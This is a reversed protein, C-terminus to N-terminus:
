SYFSFLYFLWNELWVINIFNCILIHKVCFQVMFIKYKLESSKNFFFFLIFSLWPFAFCYFLLKWNWKEKTLYGKRTMEVLFFVTLFLYCLCKWNFLNEGVVCFLLLLFLKEIGVSFLFGSNESLIIIKGKKTRFWWYAVAKM